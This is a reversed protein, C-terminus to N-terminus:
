AAATVTARVRSAAGSRGHRRRNPRPGSRPGRTEAPDCLADAVELLFDRGLLAIKVLNTAGDGSHFRAPVAGRVQILDGENFRSTSGSEQDPTLRAAALEADTVRGAVVRSVGPLALLQHHIVPDDDDFRALVYNFFIPVPQHFVQGRRVKAVVWLPRHVEVGLLTLGALATSQRRKGPALSVVGWDGAM